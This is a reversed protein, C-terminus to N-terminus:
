SFAEAYFLRSGTALAPGTGTWTSTGPMVIPHTTSNNFSLLDMRLVDLANTQLTLIRLYGDYRYIGQVTSGQITIVMESGGGNFHYSGTTGANAVLIINLPAPYDGRNNFTGSDSGDLNFTKDPAVYVRPDKAELVSTWPLGTGKVDQGSSADRVVDVTPTALPRVNVYVPRVRVGDSGPDFDSDNTPIFYSLPNYGFESPNSNYAATPSLATLMNQQLDFAEARSRGYIYGSMFVRRAGLFIDSADMGDGLARKETWGIGPVNGMRISDLLCGSLREGPALQGASNLDFARYVVPRTLDVL